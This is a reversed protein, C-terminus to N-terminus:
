PKAAALQLLKSHTDQLQEDAVLAVTEIDKRLSLFDRDHDEQLKSLLARTVTRDEEQQTELVSEFEAGLQAADTKRTADIRAELDTLATMSALQRAALARELEAAVGNRVQEQIDAAVSHKVSAELRAMAQADTSPFAFRGFGVGIGLIIAAAAGWKLAPQFFAGGRHRSPLQWGDLRKLTRGWAEVRARCEGCAALHQNLSQTAEPSSEGFLFPVWEDRHPHKM